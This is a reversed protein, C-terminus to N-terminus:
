IQPVSKTRRLVRTSNVQTVEEAIEPYKERLLSSSVRKSDQSKYSFNFGGPSSAFSADGIAKILRAKALLQKETLAKIEDTLACYDMAAFESEGTLKVTTGIDTPYNHKLAKFTADKGDVEPEIGEAVLSWFERVRNEMELQFGEHYVVEVPTVEDQLGFAVLLYARHIGTCAMQAQLQMQYVGPPEDKWHKRQWESALKFDGLAAGNGDDLICDPTCGLQYSNDAHAVFNTQPWQWLKWGTSERVEEALAAEFRSGRRMGISAADKSPTYPQSKDTWLSYLSDWNSEGFLGGVQSAGIFPHRSALWDKRSDTKIIRGAPLNPFKM